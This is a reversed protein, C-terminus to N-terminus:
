GLSKGNSSLSSKIKHSKHKGQKKGALNIFMCAINPVTFRPLKSRDPEKTLSAVTYRDLFKKKNSNCKHFNIVSTRAQM